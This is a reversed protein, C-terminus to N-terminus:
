AIEICDRKKEVATCPKTVEFLVINNIALFLDKGDANQLIVFPIEGLNYFARLTGTTTNESKGTFFMVNVEAGELSKLQLQEKKM